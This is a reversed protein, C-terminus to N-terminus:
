ARAKGEYQPLTRTWGITNVLGYSQWVFSTAVPTDDDLNCVFTCRRFFENADHPAYIKNYYDSVFDVYAEDAAVRKWIEIEDPRCLRIHYGDPLDRFAATNPAHCVMFLHYSGITEYAEALGAQAFTHYDQERM